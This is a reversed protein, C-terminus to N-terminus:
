NKIFSMLYCDIPSGDFYFFFKSYKRQCKVCFTQSTEFETQYCTVFSMLFPVSYCIKAAITKQAILSKSFFM